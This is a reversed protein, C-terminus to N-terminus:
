EPPFGGLQVWIGRVAVALEHNLDLAEVTARGIATKGLIRLGGQAWRFHQEWAQLRPNFLAVM